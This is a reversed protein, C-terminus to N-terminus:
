RQWLRNMMRRTNSELPHVGDVFQSADGDFSSIDSLDVFHYGYADGCHQLEDALRRRLEDNRTKVSLERALDPHSPTLFVLLQVRNKHCQQALENWMLLREASLDEMQGLLAVYEHKNYDLAAPFDYSGAAIAAEREHYQLLGDARYSESPPSPAASKFSKLLCRAANTTQSWSLLEQWRQRYGPLRKVEPVQAVLVPENLLRPDVKAAPSFGALDLGVVLTQPSQGFKAEYLRVFAVIDEVRGYNTGANFFTRGTLQQLYDPEIKLVRSSGLILGAPPRPLATLMRVKEARSRQVVPEFWHTPYQAYPNVIFNLSAVMACGALLWSVVSRCFQYATLQSDATLQSSSEASPTEQSDAPGTIPANDTSPLAAASEDRAPAPLVIPVEACSDFTPTSQYNARSDM